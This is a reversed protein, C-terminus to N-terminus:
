ESAVVYDVAPVPPSTKSGDLWAQFMLVPWLQYEWDRRGARHESWMREIPEPRLYGDRRLRDPALLDSAWPQLPGRLWQGIPVGFGSKPRSVLEDPVYRRLVARLPWKGVGERVKVTAPLGAAFEVVRHDLLPVRGELGVSMTARDLKVLIDDPLYTVTDLAMLLNELGAIRPWDDPRDVLLSPAEGGVVVADPDSWYTVLEEYMEAPTGLRNIAAFKKAKTAPIRPRVRMPLPRALSDWVRPPVADIVNSAALRAWQPVHERRRLVRPLYRYRDYGGFTEDGGDGSLSVTVDGRALQSVLFTPIQSSDAFPEDYIEPLRPIVAQADAATVVLETHRTELRTAIEHAADAENYTRNTSGITFTRVPETSQDQMLAVVTTSDIGGSLFAGLPVDSRMRIKVSDRLLTDLAEVLEADPMDAHTRQQFADFVCWYPKPEGSGPPDAATVTILHGPALKHVGEYISFPAPVTAFRLFSALSDRDVAFDGRPHARLANLESGFLFTRGRWGYYLPKEGLRDRALLLQRRERDWVAFAFMGNCRALTADVGWHEIAEVLVETDSHGRFRTGARELERAIDPANYIEGNYNLVHRGSASLMPQAGATSVDVISLRAHGFAIGAAPDVWAGRADPGRHALTAAMSTALASLEDRPTEAALDLFGTIGCM